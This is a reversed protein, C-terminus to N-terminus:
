FRHLGKLLLNVGFFTFLVACFGIISLIAARKGRWGVTLRVHLVSAYIFWTILSWVEKPDWRWYSGWASEAWLAGTIIALTLFPFGITILRYNIEDLTQLSPLKRFLGGIHKSKVYHEQILYMLGIGFAMAFAADGIFALVTHIGLWYSQLVPSLPEIKRPLMSSSLMLIFVVPMIFSGLLGLKYRYELYFFLLVICWSFFSSAEHLNAIPIHGSLVYRAVINGTHLAFGIAVLSIMIKSTTKTGKFLETVCVITAAFYFTLALEFLIIEM